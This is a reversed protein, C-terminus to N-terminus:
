ISFFFNLNIPHREGAEDHGRQASCRCTVRREAAGDPFAAAMAVHFRFLGGRGKGIHPTGGGPFIIPPPTDPLGGQVNVPGTGMIERYAAPGMGNKCFGIEFIRAGNEGLGHNDYEPKM